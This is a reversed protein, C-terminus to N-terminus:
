PRPPPVPPQPQPEYKERLEQLSRSLTQNQLRLTENEAAMVMNNFLLEGLMTRIRVDATQPPQQQAGAQQARAPTAILAIVLLSLLTRRM